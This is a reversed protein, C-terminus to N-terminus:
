ALMHPAKHEQMALQMLHSNYALGKHELAMLVRWSYPSGSGWYVDISMHPGHTRGITSHPMPGKVVEPQVVSISAADSAECSSSTVRNSQLLSSPLGCQPSASYAFDCRGPACNRCRSRSRDLGITGPLPRCGSGSGSASPRRSPSSPAPLSR